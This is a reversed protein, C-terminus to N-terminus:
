YPAERCPSGGALFPLTLGWTYMSTFIPFLGAPLSRKRSRASMTGMVAPKYAVLLDQVTLFFFLIRCKYCFTNSEECFLRKWVSLFGLIVKCYTLYKYIKRQMEQLSNGSSTCARSPSQSWLSWSGGHWEGTWTDLLRSWWGCRCRRCTWKRGFTQRHFSQAWACRELHPGAHMVPTEEKQSNWTWSCIGVMSATFKRGGLDARWPWSRAWCWRSATRWWWPCSLSAPRCVRPTQLAPPPSPHVEYLPPLWVSVSLAIILAFWRLQQGVNKFVSQVDCYQM